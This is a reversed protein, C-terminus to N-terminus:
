ALTMLSQNRVLLSVIDHSIQDVNHTYVNSLREKLTTNFVDMLENFNIQEPTRGPFKDLVALRILGNCSRIPKETMKSLHEGFFNTVNSM